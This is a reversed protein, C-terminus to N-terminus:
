KRDQEKPTVTDILRQVIYPADVLFGEIKNINVQSTHELRIGVLDWKHPEIANLHEQTRQIFIQDLEFKIQATRNEIAQEDHDPFHVDAIHAVTIYGKRRFTSLADQWSDWDAPKEDRAKPTPFALLKAPASARARRLAGAVQGKTLHHRRMLDAYSAGSRFEALLTAGDTM